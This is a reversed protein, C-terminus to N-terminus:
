RSHAADLEYVELDEQRMTQMQQVLQLVDEVVSANRRSTELMRVHAQLKAALQDPDWLEFPKQRRALGHTRIYEGRVDIAEPDINLTLRFPLRKMDAMTQSVSLSAAGVYRSRDADVDYSVYKASNMFHVTAPLPEYPGLGFLARTDSLIHFQLRRDKGRNSLQHVPGPPLSTSGQDPFNVQPFVLQPFVPRSGNQSLFLMIDDGVVPVIPTVLVRPHTGDGRYLWKAEQTVIGEYPVLTEYSQNM